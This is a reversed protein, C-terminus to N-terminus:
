KAPAAPPPTANKDRNVVLQVISIINQVTWYLALASAFNYCMFIFILPMFMLIKRQMPDGGQPAMKMQLFMTGAMLLPLPNIPLWGFLTVVTDPASLDNVWWFGHHRLEVAKGLMNYFGIFIPIQIFIPWCGSLPNVGAKKWMKGMEQQFRKPDEKHKEQLIKMEPSLAAMKKMNKNARSQLPWLIGKVLITLLVIALAYSTDRTVYHYIGNMSGLLMKSFWGTPIGLFTGYDLVDSEDNDLLRLRRYERPGAYIQFKREEKGGPALTIEPVAIAHDINNLQAKGSLERGSPRFESASRWEDPSILRRKAWSTIGLFPRQEDDTKDEWGIVTVLTAFYQNTVGGWRILDADTRIVPREPHKAWLIGGADFTTADNFTNGGDRWYDYGQYLSMEHQNIPATAGAHLFLKPVRTGTTGVNEFTVDLGVLYESRLKVRRRDNEDPKRPLSYRKTIKLRGFEVGNVKGAITRDFTVVREPENVVMAWPSLVEAEDDPNESFAGIPLKGFENLVIKTGKTKDEFHENLVVRSIGGGLNTFIYNVTGVESAVSKKEEPVAPVAPEAAVVPKELPTQGPTATPQQPNAAAARKAEEDRMRAVEADYKAKKEQYEKMAREQEPKSVFFHYGFALGLTVIIILLGKRDM